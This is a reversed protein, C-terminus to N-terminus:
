YELPRDATSMRRPEKSFYFGIGGIVKRGDLLRGNLCLSVHNNATSTHPSRQMRNM